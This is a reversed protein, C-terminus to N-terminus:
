NYKSKNRKYTKKYNELGIKMLLVMQKNISREEDNALRVIENYLKEEIRVTIPVLDTPMKDGRCCKLDRRRTPIGDFLVV